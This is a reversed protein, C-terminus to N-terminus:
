RPRVAQAANDQGAAPLLQSHAYVADRLTQRSPDESLLLVLENRRRECVQEYLVAVDANATGTGSENAVARGFVRRGLDARHTRLTATLLIDADELEDWWAAAIPTGAHYADLIRRRLQHLGNEKSYASGMPEARAHADSALALIEAAINATPTRAVDALLRAAGVLGLRDVLGPAPASFDVTTPGPLPGAWPVDRLRQRLGIGIPESSALATLRAGRERRVLEGFELLIWAPDPHRDWGATDASEWAWPVSLERPLYLGRPLWSRGENSTVFVSVGAPHRMASVAWNLGLTGTGVAALVGSLLTRVLVLDADVDDGIVFNPAAAALMAAGLADRLTADSGENAAPGHVGAGGRSLQGPQGTGTPAVAAIRERGDHRPADVAGRGPHLNGAAAGAPRIPSSAAPAQALNPPIGAGIMPPPGLVPDTKVGPAGLEPAVGVSENERQERASTTPESQSVPRGADDIRDGSNTAGGALPPQYRERGPSEPEEFSGVPGILAQSMAGPGSGERVDGAVPTQSFAPLPQTAGGTPQLESGGPAPRWGPVPTQAIQRGPGGLLDALLMLAPQAIGAVHRRATAAVDAVESGAQRLISEIDAPSQEAAAIRRLARDLIDLMQHRTRRVLEASQGFANGTADLASSLTESRRQQGRLDDGLAELGASARVSADFARRASDIETDRRLDGATTRAVSELQRWDEPSIAPWQGRLIADRYSDEARREGTM